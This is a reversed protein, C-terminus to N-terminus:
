QKSHGRFEPMTANGDASVGSRGLVAGVTRAMIALDVSFSRTDVYRVDLEFKEDWTLSNRGSVQALGTIGPRIDHRRAQEPSYRDLYSPMLPRPGVLSMDGRIVNFLTPLEDVSLSRLRQGLPTLRASDPEPLGVHRAPRMTRFKVLTFIRGHRGPRDQRYLIPSGLNIRILAAVVAQLPLSLALLVSALAVDMVRKVLDYRRHPSM